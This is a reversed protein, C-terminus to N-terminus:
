GKESRQSSGGSPRRVLGVAGQLTCHEYVQGPAETGGSRQECAEAKDQGPWVGPDPIRSELSGLWKM